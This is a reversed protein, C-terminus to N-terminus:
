LSNAAGNLKNNIKNGLATVAGICVIAILAVILSYEVLTAGDENRLM